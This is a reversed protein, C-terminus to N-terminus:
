GGDDLEVPVDGAMGSACVGCVVDESAADFRSTERGEADKSSGVVGLAPELGEAAGYLLDAEGVVAEVAM